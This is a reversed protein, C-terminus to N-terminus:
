RKMVVDGGMVASGDGRACPSAHTRSMHRRKRLEVGSVVQARMAVRWRQSQRQSLERVRLHGCGRQREDGGGACCLVRALM